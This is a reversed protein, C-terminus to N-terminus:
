RVNVTALAQPANWSHPALNWGLADTGAQLRVPVRIRMALRATRHPAIPGVAHCNLVYAVDSRGGFGEVYAPCTRGFRFVRGSRNRLVVTYALWRGPHVVSGPSGLLLQVSLPLESRPRGQPVFPTFRTAALKSQAGFCPPASLPRRGGGIRNQAFRLTGGGPARLLLAKPPEGPDGAATSGRGCWSSWFLSVTAWKGPALARLSGPAPTLPDFPSPDAWRAQRWKSTAGAFSLQPRGVLACPRSSDNVISIGGALNGTAGQLGLSARLQSATCAPALPPNAPGLQPRTPLWPAEGSRGGAELALVGGVAGALALLAAAAALRRRRARRKAEAILPDLEFPLASAHASM